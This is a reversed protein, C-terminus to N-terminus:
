SSNTLRPPRYASSHSAHDAGRLQGRRQVSCKRGTCGLELTCFTRCRNPRVSGKNMMSGPTRGTVRRFVAVFASPTEYGVRRSVVSVPVGAALYTLAARVRVQIRWQAFTM